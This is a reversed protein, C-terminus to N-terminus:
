APDREARPHTMVLFASDAAFAQVLSRSVTVALARHTSDNQAAVLDFIVIRIPSPRISDAVSGPHAGAPQQGAARGTFLLAFLGRAIWRNRTGTRLRPAGSVLTALLLM